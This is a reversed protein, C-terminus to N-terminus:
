IITKRSLEKVRQYWGIFTEIRVNWMVAEVYGFTKISRNLKEYEKDKPKLDKRQNYNTPNLESIKKKSNANFEKLNKLLFFSANKSVRLQM